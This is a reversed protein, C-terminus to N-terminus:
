LEAVLKKEGLSFSAQQIRGNLVEYVCLMEVTGRGEPFNRTILEFDIVINGMVVRSLLRAHLDPEAFRLLFRARMEDHGQALREGHLTFQEADFAYTNLLAEIDKGNYADLQAQVVALPSKISM